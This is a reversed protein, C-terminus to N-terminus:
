ETKREVINSKQKREWRLWAQAQSAVESLKESLVKFEGASIGRLDYLLRSYTWLCEIELRLSRLAPEKDPQGNAVIILKLCHLASSCLTSGLDHKLTKPLKIRLRYLERTLAYCFQYLPLHQYRAM